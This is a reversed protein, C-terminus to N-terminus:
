NLYFLTSRSLAYVILLFDLLQERVSVPHRHYLKFRAFRFVALNGVDAHYKAASLGGAAVVDYCSQKVGYLLHVRLVLQVAKDEARASQNVMFVDLYGFVEDVVVTVGAAEVHYARSAGLQFLHLLKLLTKLNHALKIDLRKDDDAAVVRVGVGAYQGFVIGCLVVAYLYYAARLGYVAVELVALYLSGEAEVSGCLCVRLEDAVNLAVAVRCALIPVEDLEHSTRGAVDGQFAGQLALGVDAEYGLLYLCLVHREVLDDLLYALCYSVARRM